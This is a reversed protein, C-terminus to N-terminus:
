TVPMIIVLRPPDLMSIRKEPGGTGEGRNIVSSLIGSEPHRFRVPVTHSDPMESRPPIPNSAFPVQWVTGLRDMQVWRTKKDLNVLM